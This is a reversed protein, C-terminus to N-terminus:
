KNLRFMCWQMKGRSSKSCDYGRCTVVMKLYEELEANTEELHELWAIVRHNGDWCFLMNNILDALKDQVYPNRFRHRPTREELPTTIEEEFEDNLTKWHGIFADDPLRAVRKNEDRCTVWFTCGPIVGQKISQKFKDIDARTPGRVWTMPKLRYLPVQITEILFKDLQIEINANERSERRLRTLSLERTAARPIPLVPTRGPQWISV